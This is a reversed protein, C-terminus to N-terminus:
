VIQFLSNYIRSALISVMPETDEEDYSDSASSESAELEHKFGSSVREGGRLQESSDYSSLYLYRLMEVIRSMQIISYDVFLLSSENASTVDGMESNLNLNYEDENYESDSEIFEEYEDNATANTKLKLVTEANLEELQMATEENAVLLDHSYRELFRQKLDSSILFAAIKNDSHHPSEATNLIFTAQQKSLHLSSHATQCHSSFEASSSCKLQCTLCFLM